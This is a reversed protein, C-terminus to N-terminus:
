PEELFRTCDQRCLVISLLLSRCLYTVEGGSITFQQLLASGDFLHRYTDQGVTFKGPGNQVLRGELWPPLSGERRGVVPGPPEQLCSRLWISIDVGPYLGGGRGRCALIGPYEALDEPFDSSDEEGHDSVCPNQHGQGTMGVLGVPRGLRHMSRLTPPM